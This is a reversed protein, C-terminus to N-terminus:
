IIWSAEKQQLKAFSFERDIVARLGSSVSDATVRPTRLSVYENVEVLLM